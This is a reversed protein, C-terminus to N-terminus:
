GSGKALHDLESVTRRLETFLEPEGCGKFAHVLAAYYWLTGERGGNFRNWVAEGHNLYDRLIARANHVKDAISILLASSSANALHRLYAEKRDRWEGKNESNDADSCEM